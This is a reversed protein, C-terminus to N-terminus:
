AGFGGDDLYAKEAATSARGLVANRHPFRGFRRIVDMHVLAYHYYTQDGLRRFLDVAREQQAMDEAHEFPLYFFTRGDKPFARDFGADVAKAAIAQARADGAFARADDRFVNRPFQDLLLLLALAGHPTDAWADLRGSLAAEMCGSFRDRIIADFHPDRKFWSQPGATWWFDLIDLPNCSTDPM